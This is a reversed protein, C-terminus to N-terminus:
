DANTQLEHVALAAEFIPLPTCFVAIDEEQAKASFAADPTIGEAVIICSCDTLTAVAITNINSMITIWAADSPAKSMAVSLLDCCFPKSIEREGNGAVVPQFLQSSKLASVNM